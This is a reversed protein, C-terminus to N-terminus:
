GDKREKGKGGRTEDRTKEEIRNEEGRKAESRVEKRKAESVDGCGNEQM